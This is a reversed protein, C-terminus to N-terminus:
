SERGQSGTSRAANLATEGCGPGWIAAHGQGADGAGLASGVSHRHVLPLAGGQGERAELKETVEVSMEPRAHDGEQEAGEM